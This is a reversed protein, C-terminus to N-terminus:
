FLRVQNTKFEAKVDECTIVVSEKAHRNKHAKYMELMLILKGPGLVAKFFILFNSLMAVCYIWKAVILPTLKRTHETQTNYTPDSAMFILNYIFGPCFYCGM